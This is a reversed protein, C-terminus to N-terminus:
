GVMRLQRQGLVLPTGPAGTRPRRLKHKYPSVREETTAELSTRVRCLARGPSADEQSEEESGPLQQRGPVPDISGQTDIGHEGSGAKATGCRGVSHCWLSRLPALWRAYACDDQEVEHRVGLYAGLVRLTERRTPGVTCRVLCNRSCASPVCSRAQGPQESHRRVQLM